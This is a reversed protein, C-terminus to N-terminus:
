RGIRAAATNPLLEAAAPQEGSRDGPAQEAADSVPLTDWPCGEVSTPGPIRFLWCAAGMPVFLVKLATVLVLRIDLWLSRNAIYWRDYLLKKRVSDLDTDAALQVQALGTVGPRVLLREEYGPIAKALAPVFEPREPRPGVLSMHGMLVNFLQPLEDLHSARLFKGLWTVRMDGPKSWQAGSQKECNHAMSRFKLIWFPKGGRGIRLQTYIAPGRSTLRVMLGTLLMIPLALPMLIIAAALDMARQAFLSGAPVLRAKKADTKCPLPM